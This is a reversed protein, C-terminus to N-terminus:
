IVIEQKATAARADAPRPSGYAVTVTSLSPTVPLAELSSKNFLTQEIGGANHTGRFWEWMNMTVLLSEHFFFRYLLMVIIYGFAFIQTIPWESPPPSAESRPIVNPAGTTANSDGPSRMGACRKCRGSGTHRQLQIDTDKSVELACRWVAKL